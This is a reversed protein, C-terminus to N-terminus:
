LDHLLKIQSFMDVVQNQNGLIAWDSPSRDQYDKINLSAGNSLLLKIIKKNGDMAAWCLPTAGISDQSNIDSGKSILFKIIKEDGVSTAIHLVNKYLENTIQVGKLLLFKIMKEDGASIAMHLPTYGQSDQIDISEGANLLCEVEEINGMLSAEHLQTRGLILESNDDELIDITETEDIAIDSVTYQERLYNTLEQSFVELANATPEFDGDGGESDPQVENELFTQQIDFSCYIRVVFNLKKENKM